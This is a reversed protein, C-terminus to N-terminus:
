FGEVMYCMGVVSIGNGQLSANLQNLLNFIDTIYSLIAIFSGINFYTMVTSQKEKFSEELEHRLEVLRNLARGRSLWWNKSYHLLEVHDANMKEWPRKFLRSNLASYKKDIKHASRTSYTGSNRGAMASRTSYTGSNRGAMASSTSYTGSNRGAMASITQFLIKQHM